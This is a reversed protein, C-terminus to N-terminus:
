TRRRLEDREHPAVTYGSVKYHRREVAVVGSSERAAYRAAGMRDRLMNRALRLRVGAEANADHAQEFADILADDVLATSVGFEGEIGDDIDPWLRRLAADTAAHEDPDPPTGLMLKGLFREGQEVWGAMAEAEAEGFPVRYVSLRKHAMRVVYGAPAGLVACQQAVQVAHHEPVEATGPSGWHGGEDSKCEVPEVWGAGDVALFDPTALMWEVAHHRWLAGDPRCVMLDPYRETFLQGIVPELLTGIYMADSRPSEWGKQKSWWLSFPSHYASRIGLVGAMESAGIGRRRAALWDAEAAGAPLVRVASTRPVRGFRRRAAEADVDSLPVITKPKM